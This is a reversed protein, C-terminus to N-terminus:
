ASRLGDNTNCESCLMLVDEPEKMAGSEDLQIPISGCGQMDMLWMNPKYKHIDGNKIPASVLNSNEVCACKKCIFLSM